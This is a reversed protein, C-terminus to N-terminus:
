LDKAYYIHLSVSDLYINKDSHKKHMFLLSGSELKKCLLTSSVVVGQPRFSFAWNKVNILDEFVPPSLIKIEPRPLSIFLSHIESLSSKGFYSHNLYKVTKIYHQVGGLCQVSM